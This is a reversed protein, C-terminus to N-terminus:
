KDLKNINKKVERRIKRVKDSSEKEIESVLAEQLSVLYEFDQTYSNSIFKSLESWVKGKYDNSEM